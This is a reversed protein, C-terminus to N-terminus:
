PTLVLEVTSVNNRLEKERQTDEDIDKPARLKNGSTTDSQLVGPSQDMLGPTEQNYHLLGTSAGGGGTQIALDLYCTEGRGQVRGSALQHSYPAQLLRFSTLHFGTHDSTNPGTNATWAGRLQTWTDPGTSAASM